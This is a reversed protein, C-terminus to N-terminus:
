KLYNIAECLEIPNYNKRIRKQENETMEKFNPKIKNGNEDQMVMLMRGSKMERYPDNYYDKLVKELQNPNISLPKISFYDMKYNSKQVGAFTFTFNSKTDELSLILGPLGEFVYPGANIPIDKTFWAIWHRGCYYLNAKQCSYEGIKKTENEIKWDFHSTPTTIEYLDRNILKFRQIKQSKMDKIAMFDYDYKIPHSAEKEENEINLSDNLLQESSIFKTINETTLLVMNKKTLIESLSDEKYQITYDIRYNQSFLNQSIYIFVFLILKFSFHKMSEM